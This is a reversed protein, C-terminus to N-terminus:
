RRRFPVIDPGGEKTICWYLPFTNNQTKVISVLAESRGYGFRANRPYNFKKEIGNMIRIYKEKIKGLYLDSIGKKRVEDAFCEVGLQKVKEIGENQAMFVAVICHENSFGKEVLLYNLADVAQDGTGIFDDVIIYTSNADFVVSKPHTFTVQMDKFAQIKKVFARLAYQIFIGSKLHKDLDKKALLPLVCVKSRDRFNESGFKRFINRFRSLLESDECYIFNKTLEVVLEREDRELREFLKCLADFAERISENSFSWSNKRFVQL